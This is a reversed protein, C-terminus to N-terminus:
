AATEDLPGSRAFISKLPKNIKINKKKMVVSHIFFLAYDNM